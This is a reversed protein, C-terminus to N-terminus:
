EIRRHSEERTTQLAVVQWREDRYRYVRTYRFPATIQVDDYSWDITAGGVVIVTNGYRRIETNDFQIAKLELKPDLAGKILVEKSLIVTGDSTTAIIEDSLIHQMVDRNGQIEAEAWQEELAMIERYLEPSPKFDKSQSNMANSTETTSMM